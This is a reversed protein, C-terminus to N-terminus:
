RIFQWAFYGAIFVSLAICAMGFWDLPPHVELRLQRVRLDIPENLSDYLDPAYSRPNSWPSTEALRLPTRNTDM